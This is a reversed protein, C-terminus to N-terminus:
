QDAVSLPLGFWSFVGSEFRTLGSIAAGDLTLVLISSARRGGEPLDLYVAFAPQGNARTPVLTRRGSTFIRPCFAAV